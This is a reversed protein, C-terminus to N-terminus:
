LNEPLRFKLGKLYAKKELEEARAQLLRGLTMADPILREIELSQENAFQSVAAEAAAIEGMVDNTPIKLRLEEIEKQRTELMVHWERAQKSFRDDYERQIREVHAGLEQSFQTRLEETIQSRLMETLGAVRREFDVAYWQELSRVGDVLRDLKRSTGAFPEPGTEPSGVELNGPELNM